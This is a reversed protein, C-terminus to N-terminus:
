WSTTRSRGTVRAPDQNTSTATKTVTPYVRDVVPICDTDDIPIAGVTLTATNFFGNGPQGTCDADDPDVARDIDVLWSM